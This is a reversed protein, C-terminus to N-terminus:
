TPMGVVATGPRARRVPGRHHGAHRLGPRPGTTRRTWLCHRAGGSSRGPWRSRTFWRFAATGSDPMAPSRRSGAYGIVNAGYTVILSADDPEAHDALYRQTEAQRDSVWQHSGSPRTPIARISPSSSSTPFARACRKRVCLSRGQHREPHSRPLTQTEASTSVEAVLRAVATLGPAAPTVSVGTLNPQPLSCGPGTEPRPGTRLAHPYELRAQRAAKGPRAARRDAPSSPAACGAAFARDSM